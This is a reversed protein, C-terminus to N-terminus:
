MVLPSLIFFNIVNVNMENDQKSESETITINNNTKEKNEKEYIDSELGNGGKEVKVKKM